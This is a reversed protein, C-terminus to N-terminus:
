FKEILYSGPKTKLERKIVWEKTKGKRPVGNNFVEGDPGMFRFNIKSVIGELVTLTIIGDESIRDPGNIRALSFGKDEYWKKIRNIKNQLENLNLTRGYYNKFTDNVYKNPIVTNIPNLVVEKLIPNPVISVILRVGLPGDQSNIKVGSFWGSSYISNLDKKLIENNVISGPKINMADYAALELKRGEPHNEWGEIIIESILVSEENIEESNNEALLFNDKAYKEIKKFENNEFINIKRNDFLKNEKNPNPLYKAALETNNSIFILPSCAISTFVKRFKM